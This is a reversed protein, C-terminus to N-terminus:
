SISLVKPSMRRIIASTLRQVRNLRTDVAQLPRQAFDLRYEVAPMPQHRLLLM